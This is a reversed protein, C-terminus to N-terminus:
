TPELSPGPSVTTDGRRAEGLLLKVLFYVLVALVLWSNAVYALAWWRLHLFM